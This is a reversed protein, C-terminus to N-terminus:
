LLKTSKIIVKRVPVNSHGGQGKTPLTKIQNVISMGKIVKGFVAYGFGRPTKNKHDLFANDNVNIFFQSTASNVDSTRAMAITGNTNKLGNFAENIIPEKTPKHKLDPTMGGGQIMFNNIVRHFVTNNYHGSKVYKIFNKVTVPAKKKDLELVISGYNTNLQVKTKEIKGPNAYSNVTLLFLSLILGKLVKNLM